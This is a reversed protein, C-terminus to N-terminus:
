SGDFEEGEMDVMPGKELWCSLDVPLRERVKELFSNAPPMVGLFLEGVCIGCDIGSPRAMFSPELKSGEAAAIAADLWRVAEM